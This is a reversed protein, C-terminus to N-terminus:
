IEHIDGIKKKIKLKKTINEIQKQQEMMMLCLEQHRAFLGRRLNEGRKRLEAIEDRLLSTENNEKFLDLQTAM